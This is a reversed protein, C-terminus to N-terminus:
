KKQNNEFEERIRKFANMLFSQIRELASLPKESASDTKGGDKISNEKGSDNQNMKELPKWSPDIKNATTDGFADALAELLATQTATQPRMPQLEIVVKQDGRRGGGVPVGKDPISIIRGQEAGAPIRLKVKQGDLTPIDVKGGLCATTMLIKCKYVLNNGDRVFNADPRVRVRIILDGNTLVYGSSSTTHPADGAGSVRIRSGDRLGQPLRVETEKTRNVVGDGHCINCKDENKIVVGTGGCTTCTSAMQFGAQLFHVQSGTGGCTPCTSKKRGQKLGSGHCFDCKSLANYKVAVNTGFIAEKFAITKLVEIDEGQFHQVSSRAGGYGAGGFPNGSGRSGGMGGFLDDFNIGFGEFPNGTRAGSSGGFPNGGYASYTGAAGATQGSPGFGAAGFQDFQQKKKPDSLIDYAEQLSHFKEEADSSNNVDPHYKKALKYYAKKIQSSSANKEVGLVKYPNDLLASSSSHFFRM